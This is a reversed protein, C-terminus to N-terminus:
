LIISHIIQQVTFIQSYVNILEYLLMIYKITNNMSRNINIYQCIIIIMRKFYTLEIFHIFFFCTFILTKWEISYCYTLSLTYWLMIYSFASNNIMTHWLLIYQLAYQLMTNHFLTNFRCLISILLKFSHFKYM